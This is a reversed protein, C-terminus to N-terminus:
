FISGIEEVSRCVSIKKRLEVAGDFGKMFWMAQRKINEFKIEFDESYELYKKFLSVQNDFSIEKESFVGPNGIAGRGIMVADVGSKEMKRKGSVISDIDGNGIVPVSVNEKVQKIVDWSAEGSYKQAVTRGHIAIADVGADQAIKANRLINIHDKDHGIRMKVTVPVDVAKRVAEVIKGIKVPKILLSAGAGIKMVDKDPCGMNIDIVDVHDELVKCGSVLNDIKAGFIQGVIPKETKGIQFKRLTAKNNRVIANCNIMETYVLGCGEDLCLRRFPADTVNAMPALFFKNKVKVNGIKM